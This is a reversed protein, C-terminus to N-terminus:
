GSWGGFEARGERDQPESLDGIFPHRPITGGGPPPRRRRRSLTSNRSGRQHPATQQLHLAPRLSRQNVITRRAPAAGGRRSTAHSAPGGRHSWGLVSGSTSVSAGGPPRGSCVRDHEHEQAERMAWGSSTPGGVHYIRRLSLKPGPTAGAIRTLRLTPPAPSRGELQSVLVGHGERRGAGTESHLGRRAGSPVVARSWRDPHPTSRV